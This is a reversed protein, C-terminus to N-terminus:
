GGKRLIGSLIVDIIAEIRADLPRWEVWANELMVVELCAVGHMAAWLTQAGLQPDTLGQRVLGLEIAERVSEVLPAYPDIHPDGQRPDGPVLVVRASEPTMLMFRFHNPHTKAFTVYARVGARLREVPDAIALLPLFESAFAVADEECLCRLLQQKDEFYSYIATASYEIKQAIRRMTVAETGEAVFLERAADLIRQRTELRERERRETSGM